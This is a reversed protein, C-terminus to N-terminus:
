PTFDQALLTGVIENDTYKYIENYKNQQQQYKLGIWTMRNMAIVGFEELM